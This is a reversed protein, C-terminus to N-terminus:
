PHNLRKSDSCERDEGIMKPLRYQVKRHYAQIKRYWMIWELQDRLLIKLLKNIKHTKQYVASVRDEDSWGEVTGNSPDDITNTVEAIFRIEEEMWSLRQYGMLPAIREYYYDQPKPYEDWM